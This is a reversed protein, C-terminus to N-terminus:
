GHVKSRKRAIAKMAQMNGSTRRLEALGPAQGCRTLEALDGRVMVPPHEGQAEFALSRAMALAPRRTVVDLLGRAAAREAITEIPLPGGGSEQLVVLGAAAFTM